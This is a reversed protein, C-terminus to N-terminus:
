QGPRIAPFNECVSRWRANHEGIAARTADSDAKNGDDRVPRSEVAAAEREKKPVLTYSLTGVTLCLDSATRPTPQTM